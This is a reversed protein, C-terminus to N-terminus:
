FGNIKHVYMRCYIEDDYLDYACFWVAVLEDSCVWGFHVSVSLCFFESVYDSAFLFFGFFDCSLEGVDPNM